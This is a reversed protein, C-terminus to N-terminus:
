TPSVCRLLDTDNKCASPVGVVYLRFRELMEQVTLLVTSSSRRSGQCQLHLHRSGVKEVQNMM